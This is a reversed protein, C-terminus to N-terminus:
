DLKLRLTVEPAPYFRRASLSGQALASLDVDWGPVSSPTGSLWDFLATVPLAAGTAQETLAALSDFRQRQNGQQMHAATANWDLTVLTTGLPTYLNLSGNQAQGRLSFSASMQNPPTTQVTVSM